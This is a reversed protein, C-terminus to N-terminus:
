DKFFLALWVTKTKESTKRVRHKMLRPIFIYDGEKMSTIKSDVFEIEAEGKLLIVFENEDQEYWFDEPSNQGESVIREIRCKPSDIIKEIIEDHSADPLNTFINDHVFNMQSSFFLSAFLMERLSFNNTNKLKLRNTM